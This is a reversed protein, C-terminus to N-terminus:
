LSPTSATGKDMLNNLANIYHFMLKISTNFGEETLLTRELLVSEKKNLKKNKQQVLILSGDKQFTSLADESLEVPYHAFVNREEVIAVFDTFYRPNSEKFEPNYKDVLYRFVEVKPKFEMRPALILCM